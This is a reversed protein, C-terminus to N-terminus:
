MGINVNLLSAPLKFFVVYQTQKSVSQLPQEITFQNQKSLGQKPQSIAYQTQKKVANAPQAIAYQTQKSVSNNAGSFLPVPTTGSIPWGGFGEPPAYQMVPGANITVVPSGSATQFGVIPIVPGTLSSFDIGGVGTAPNASFTGNWQGNGYQFWILRNAIDVAMAITTTPTTGNGLFIRTSNGNVCVYQIPSAVVTDVVAGAGYNAWVTTGDAVSWSTSCIGVALDCDNNAAANLTFEIYYKGSSLPNLGCVQSQNESATVVTNGDSFALSSLLLSAYAGSADWTTPSPM